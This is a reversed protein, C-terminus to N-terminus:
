HCSDDSIELFHKAMEEDECNWSDQRGKERVADLPSFRTQSHSLTNSLSLPVSFSRATNLCSSGVCTSVGDGYAEGLLDDGVAPCVGGLGGRGGKQKGKKGVHVGGGSTQSEMGSTVAPIMKWLRSPLGVKLAALLTSRSVDNAGGLGRGKGQVRDPKIESFADRGHLGKWGDCDDGDVRKRIGAGKSAKDATFVEGGMESCGTEKTKKAKDIKISSRRPPSISRRRVSACGAGAGTSSRRTVISDISPQSLADVASSSSARHAVQSSTLLTNFPSSPRNSNSECARNIPRLRSSKPDLVHLTSLAPTHTYHLQALSPTSAAPFISSPQRCDKATNRDIGELAKCTISSSNTGSGTVVKGLVAIGGVRSFQSGRKVNSKNESSSSETAFPQSAARCRATGVVSSSVSSPGSVSPVLSFGSLVVTSSPSCPTSRLEPLSRSREGARCSTGGRSGKGGVTERDRAADRARQKSNSAVKNLDNYAAKDEAGNSECAAASSSDSNTEGLDLRLMKLNVCRLSERRLQNNHDIDIQRKIECNMEKNIEDNIQTMTIAIMRISERRADSDHVKLEGEKEIAKGKRKARKEHRSESNKSSRTTNCASDTPKIEEKEKTDHPHTVPTIEVSLQVDTVNATVIEHERPSVVVALATHQEETVSIECPTIDATIPTVIRQQREEDVDDDDDSDDQTNSSAANKTTADDGSADCETGSSSLTFDSQCKRLDTLGYRDRERARTSKDRASSFDASKNRHVSSSKRDSMTNRDCEDDSKMHDDTNNNIKSKNNCNSPLHGQYVSSGQNDQDTTVAFTGHLSNTGSTQELASLEKESFVHCRSLLAMFNGDPPNGVGLPVTEEEVSHLDVPGAYNRIANFAVYYRAANAGTALRQEYLQKNVSNAGKSSSTLSYVSRKRRSKVIDAIVEEGGEGEREDERSQSHEILDEWVKANLAVELRYRMATIRLVLSFRKLMRQWLPATRAQYPQKCSSPFAELHTTIGDELISGSHHTANGSSSSNSIDHNVVPVIKKIAAKKMEIKPSPTM